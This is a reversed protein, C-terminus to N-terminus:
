VICGFGLWALGGCASVFWGLCFLVLLFLCFAFRGVCSLVLGCFFDYNFKKQTNTFGVVGVFAM